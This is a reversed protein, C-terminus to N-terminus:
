EIESMKKQFFVLHDEKNSEVFEEAWSIIKEVSKNFDQRSLKDDSDLTEMVGWMRAFHVATECIKRQKM